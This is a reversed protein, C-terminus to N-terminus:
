GLEIWLLKIKKFTRFHILSYFISLDWIAVAMILWLTSLAFVHLSRGLWLGLLTHNSIQNLSCATKNNKVPGTDDYILAVCFSSFVLLFHFDNNQTELKNWYFILCNYLLYLIILKRNRAFSFASPFLFTM